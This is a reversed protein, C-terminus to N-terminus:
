FESMVALLKDKFVDDWVIKLANKLQLLVDSVRWIDPCGHIANRLSMHENKGVELPSQEMDICYGERKRGSFGDDPISKRPESIQMLLVDNM